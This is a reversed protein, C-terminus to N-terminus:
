DYIQSNPPNPLYNVIQPKFKAPHTQMKNLRTQQSTHIIIEISKEHLENRSYNLLTYPNPLLDYKLIQKFGQVSTPFHSTIKKKLLSSNKQLVSSAYKM